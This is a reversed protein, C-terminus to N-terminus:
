IKDSDKTIHARMSVIEDLEKQQSRLLEEQYTKRKKDKLREIIKKDMAKQRLIEHKAEVLKETEKIKELQREARLGQLKIFEHIQKVREVLGIGSQVELSQITIRSEDVSAYIGELERKQAQLISDADLYERQALDEQIQRHRLVKQLPFKFKM